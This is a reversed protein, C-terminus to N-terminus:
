KQQADNFEREADAVVQRMQLLADASFSISQIGMQVLWRTLEPFDSPAQGCIGSYKKNRECARIAQRMLEKVADNREDGEDIVLGSDRDLGLTTQTLDNSGISFGDFDELFKEALLANVPLECMLYISLGREGRKLGFSELLALVKKGEAVTRVMPVLLQVNTFGMEERVTKIVTCDIGFSEKFEASYYRYAGRIGLMPNEEKPEFKEGGILKIYENSKLDPLRLIVPRPWFAAAIMGIGEALRKTYFDMPGSYGAAIQNIEGRLAPDLTSYHILSQPHIRVSNNIIFEMRALGVGDSPLRSAEFALSPDALTLMLKAHTSIVHEVEINTVDFALIGEYVFGTDGEACSVTLERGDSILTTANGTGVVAPIGLERAIIAAHCTRGGRNTVIASAIRMIPEWDPNTQDTVLVEGPKLEHMHEVAPIIRASGSAIKRGISKGVVVVESHEQLAHKEYIHATKQAEVTEPRAQLIFLEGTIGDKGWEIDMSVAHGARSSYHDEIIMAYRALELIENDNLSFSNRETQTTEVLRVLETRGQSYILKELKSGRERRLIPKHGTALTSKFVFFEDPNIQGQVVTEGLGWASTILIVDRFGSETDLTFMVGASGEDSRVMRQVAVAMSIDFLECGIDLRYSIARDTFLSAFCRKIHSIVDNIDSVMLSTEFQGAFSHMPSDEVTASSRVAVASAGDRCLVDYAETIEQVVDSPMIGAMVLSRVRHGVYSINKKENDIGDMLSAISQGLGNQSLFYKYGESTLAFGDPVPIGRADLNTYMEGLSANKGGVLAVDGMGIESFWKIYKMSKGKTLSRKMDMPLIVYRDSKLNSM